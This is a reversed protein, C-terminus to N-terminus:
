QLSMLVEEQEVTIAVQLKMVMLFEILSNLVMSEAEQDFLSKASMLMVTITYNLLPREEVVVMHGQVEAFKLFEGLQFLM